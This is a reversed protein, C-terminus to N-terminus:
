VTEEKNEEKVGAFDKSLKDVTKQMYRERALGSFETDLKRLVVPSDVSPYKALEGDPRSIITVFTNFDPDEYQIEVIEITLSDMPSKKAPKAPDISDDIVKGTESEEADEKTRRKRDKGAYATSRADTIGHKAPEIQHAKKIETRLEGRTQSDIINLWYGADQLSKIV